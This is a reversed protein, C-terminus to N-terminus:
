VQPAALLCVVVGILRVLGECVPPLLSLQTIIAAQVLRLSDVDTSATFAALSM